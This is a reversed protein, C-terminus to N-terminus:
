VVKNNGIIKELKLIMINEFLMHKSKIINKKKM